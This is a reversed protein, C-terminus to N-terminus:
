KERGSEMLEEPREARKRVETGPARDEELVRQERRDVCVGKLEVIPNTSAKGTGGEPSREAEM